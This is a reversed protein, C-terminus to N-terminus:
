VEVKVGKEAVVRVKREITEKRDRRDDIKLSTSVRRVDEVFAAEHMARVAALCDDLEGEIITGMATLKYKLGEKQAREELLKLCGAVYKSVGTEGTGLPVISVEVMAM